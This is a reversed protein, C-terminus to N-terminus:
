TWRNKLIASLEKMAKKSRPSSTLAWGEGLVGAQTLWKAM